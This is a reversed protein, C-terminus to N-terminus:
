KLRPGSESPLSSRGENHTLISRKEYMRLPCISANHDTTRTMFIDWFLTGM